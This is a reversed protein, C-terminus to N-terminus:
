TRLWKIGTAAPAPAQTQALAAQAGSRHASPGAKGVKLRVARLNAPGLEAWDPVPMDWNIRGIGRHEALAQGQVSLDLSENRVMGPRKEWKKATRREATFEILAEEPLWRPLPFAGMGAEKQGLAAVVTDKLRDVAINLIKISRARKGNSAREPTEYWVRSRQQFGGWGRSVFWLSGQGAKRRGRLFKEANDSVGPAGHFDVVLALPLLGYDAGDVPYVRESLGELVAWDEFYRGPDLARDKAAPAEEPPTALAFRDIITRMGDQGWAMVQAVFYSGQVDVSVTIFRGWAPAMGREMERQGERLRALTLGGEEDGMRPRFPLGIDTNVVVKMDMEEGMTEAHRKAVEFKTIITAWSAFAAAAGNLAYSLRSVSRIEPDHVGVLRGDDTEHLWGGHGQLARQNLTLKQDRGILSGCGEAPCLMMAEEGAKSPPLTPDYHLRDIRPEFLEHCHPCEWYWRARTGGNYLGVIGECPPMEHPSEAVWGENLIPHGPSSEAVAMGRSGLTEPRKSALIFPTGEGDINTKMSDLDTIFEFQSTRGRWNDSTPWGIGIKAGGIFRKSFINRDSGGLGQRDALKPSNRIMPALEDESWEQGKLKSMHTVHVPCPDCTIAYNIGAQLLGLTKSARAPGVFVLERWRRSAMMDAPEVMYPAVMRDFPVWRGQANVMMTAEAAETVTMRRAPRLAQLARRLVPGISAFPPLPEYTEAASM